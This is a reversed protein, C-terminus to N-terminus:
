NPNRAHKRIIGYRKNFQEQTVSDIPIDLNFAVEVVFERNEPNAIHDEWLVGDIYPLKEEHKEVHIYEPYDPLRNHMAIKISGRIIMAFGLLIILGTFGRNIRDGLKRKENM